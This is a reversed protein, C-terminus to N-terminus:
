ACRKHGTLAAWLLLVPLKLRKECNLVNNKLLLVGRSHLLGNVFAGFNRECLGAWNLADIESKSIGPRLSYFCEDACLLSLLLNVLIIM